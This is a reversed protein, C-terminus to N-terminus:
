NRLPKGTKLTFQIREVTKAEGCLSLFAERELDLIMAESLLTGSTVDGGTLVRALHTAVKADHESIYAGERMLYIGLKLTAQMADGPAAIDTKAVPATYGARALRLAQARADSVLRSRNMTIADNDNVFRLTRAEMASTSVKAMAMTEFIQKLTEIVEVSDGRADARVADAAALARLLMEKCGGGGPILGVGTEVLGAYL